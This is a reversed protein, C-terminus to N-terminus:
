AKDVFVGSRVSVVIKVDVGSVSNVATFIDRALEIERSKVIVKTRNHM